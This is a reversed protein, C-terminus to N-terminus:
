PSTEVFHARGGGSPGSRGSTLPCSSTEWSSSARPPATRRATAVVVGHVDGPIDFDQRAENTLPAFQLGLAGHEHASPEESPEEGRATEVSKPMLGIVPHLKLLPQRSTRAQASPRAPIRPDQTMAVSAQATSPAGGTGRVQRSHAEPDALDPLGDPQVDAALLRFNERPADRKSAAVIAAYREQLTAAPMQGDIYLARRTGAYFSAGAPSLTLL